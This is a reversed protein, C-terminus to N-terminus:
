MSSSPLTCTRLQTFSETDSFVSYLHENMEFTPFVVDSTSIVTSSLPLSTELAHWIQGSGSILVARYYEDLFHEYRFITVKAKEILIYKM